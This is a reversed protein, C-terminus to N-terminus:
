FIIENGVIGKLDNKQKNLRLKLNEEENDM